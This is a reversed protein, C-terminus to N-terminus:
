IAAIQALDRPERTGPSRVSRCGRRHAPIRPAVADLIRAAFLEIKILTRYVRDDVAYNVLPCIGPSRPKAMVPRRRRPRGAQDIRCVLDTM